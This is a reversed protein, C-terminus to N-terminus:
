WGYRWPSGVEQGSAETGKGVPEVSPQLAVDVGQMTPTTLPPRQDAGGSFGEGAALVDCPGGVIAPERIQDAKGVLM